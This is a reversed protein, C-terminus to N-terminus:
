AHTLREGHILLRGKGSRKVDYLASDAIALVEELGGGDIVDPPAHEPWCAGGLSCGVSVSRGGIDYPAAVGTLVRRSRTPRPM